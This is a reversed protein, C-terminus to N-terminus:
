SFISLTSFFTSSLLEFTISAVSVSLLAKVSIFSSFVFLFDSSTINKRANKLPKAAKNVGQTKGITGIVTLKKM